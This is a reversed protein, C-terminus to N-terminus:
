KLAPFTLYLQFKEKSQVNYALLETKLFAISKRTNWLMLFHFFIPVVM